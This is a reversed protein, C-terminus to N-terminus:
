SLDVSILQAAAFGSSPAVNLTRWPFLRPTPEGM